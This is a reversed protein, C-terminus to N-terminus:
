TTVDSTVRVRNSVFEGPIYCPVARVSFILQANMLDCIRVPSFRRIWARAASSADAHAVCTHVPAVGESEAQLWMYLRRSAHRARWSGRLIYRGRGAKGAGHIM